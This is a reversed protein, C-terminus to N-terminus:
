RLCISGKQLLFIPRQLHRQLRLVLRQQKGSMDLSCDQRHIDSCSQTGAAKMWDSMKRGVWDFYIASECARTQGPTVTGRYLLQWPWGNQHQGAVSSYKVPGLLRKSCCARPPTAHPAPDTSLSFPQSALALSNMVSLRGGARM